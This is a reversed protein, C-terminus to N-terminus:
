EYAIIIGGDNAYTSSLGGTPVIIVDKLAPCNELLNKKLLAAREPHNCYCLTLLVSKPKCIETREAVIAALRQLAKHSGRVREVQEIEGEGNEGMIPRFMMLAALTGQLKPIRGNKVLVSLDDLVFFTRMNDIFKPMAKCIDDFSAGKEIMSYLRMVIRLEGASASKSDFVAIQKNPSDELVMQRAAMAANYSGSLKSSLTVVVAAESNRMCWAYEEPSPASTIIPNKTAKMDAMLADLDLDENDTYQRISDISIKLPVSCLGTKERLPPTIDCCSDAIIQISM